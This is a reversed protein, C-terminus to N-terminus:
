RGKELHRFTKGLGFYHIRRINKVLLRDVAFQTLRFYNKGIHCLVARLLRHYPFCAGDAAPPVQAGAATVARVVPSGCVTYTIAATVVVVTATAAGAWLLPLLRPLTAAGVM